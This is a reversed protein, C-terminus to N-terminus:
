VTSFFNWMEPQSQSQEERPAHPEVHLVNQNTVLLSFGRKVSNRAAIERIEIRTPQACLLQQQMM